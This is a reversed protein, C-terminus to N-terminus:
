PPQGILGLHGGTGAEGDGPHCDYVVTVSVTTHSQQYFENGPIHSPFAEIVSDDELSEALNNRHFDYPLFSLLYIHSTHIKVHERESAGEQIYLVSSHYEM